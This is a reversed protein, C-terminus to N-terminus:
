KWRVPLPNQMARELSWHLAKTELEMNLPSNVGQAKFNAVFRLRKQLSRGHKMWREFIFAANYSQCEYWAVLQWRIGRTSKCKGANHTRLRNVVDQAVGVYVDRSGSVGTRPQDIGEQFLVYIFM